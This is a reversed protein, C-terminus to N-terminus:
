ISELIQLPNEPLGASRLLVQFLKKTFEFNENSSEFVLIRDPLPLVATIDESSLHAFSDGFTSAVLGLNFSTLGTKVVGVVEEFSADAPLTFEFLKGLSSGGTDTIEVAMLDQVETIKLRNPMLDAIVNFGLAHDFTTLIEAQVKPDMVFFAEGSTPALASGGTNGQYIYAAFFIALFAFTTPLFRKYFIYKEAV